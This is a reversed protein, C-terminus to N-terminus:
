TGEIYRAALEPYGYIDFPKEIGCDKAFEDAAAGISRILKAFAAVNDRKKLQGAFLEQAMPICAMVQMYALHVCEDHTMPTSAIHGGQMQVQGNNAFFVCRIAGNELRFLETSTLWDTKIRQMTHKIM